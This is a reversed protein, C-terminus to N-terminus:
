VNVSFRKTQKGKQNKYTANNADTTNINAHSKVCYKILFFFFHGNFLITKNLNFLIQDAGAHVYIM